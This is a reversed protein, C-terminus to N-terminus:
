EFFNAILFIKPSMKTTPNFGIFGFTNTLPDFPFATPVFGSFNGCWKCTMSDIASENCYAGYAYYLYEYSV